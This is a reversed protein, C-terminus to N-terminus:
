TFSFFLILISLDIAKRGFIEGRLIQSLVLIAVGLGFITSVQNPGYGGSTSPNSYPLFNYTQIDPMKLYVFVSM